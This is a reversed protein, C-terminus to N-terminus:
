ENKEFLYCSNSGEYILEYGEKLPSYKYKRADWPNIVMSIRTGLFREVMHFKGPPFIVM